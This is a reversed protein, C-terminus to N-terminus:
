KNNALVGIKVLHRLEKKFTEYHVRPVVYPRAHVPKADEELEIHFKTHPYVGLTGDFLRPYKLLIKKKIENKRM